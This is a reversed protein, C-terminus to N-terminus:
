DFFDVLKRAQNALSFNSIIYERPTYTTIKEQFNKFSEELDDLNYFREGLSNSWFPVSTAEIALDPGNDLWVNVDWCLIPLNSSAIEQIAIGQSETNDILICYKSTKCLNILDSQAYNGYQVINYSQKKERLFSIVKKLEEPNRRKFYVLCDFEKNEGSYDEFLNTNIGVPWVKILEPPLWKEYLNKVWQSPVIISKYNLSMVFKNDTPLTCINPGIILNEKKLHQESFLQESFQLAVNKTFMSIPQNTSFPENILSLGDM